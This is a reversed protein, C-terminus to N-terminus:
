ARVLSRGDRVADFDELLPLAQQRLLRELSESSESLRRIQHSVAGIWHISGCEDIAEFAKIFCEAEGLAENVSDLQDRISQSIAM